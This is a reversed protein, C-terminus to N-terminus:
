RTREREFEQMREQELIQRIKKEELEKGMISGAGYVLFAHAALGNGWGLLPWYFWLSSPDILLNTFQLLINVFVYVCVHTYFLRLQQVRARALQYREQDYQYHEQDYM